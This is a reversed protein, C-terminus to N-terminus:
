WPHETGDWQLFKGADDPTANRMVKLIGAVSQEPTLKAHDGGMRTQVWGPNVMLVTIGVPLLDYALARSLMNLAAKSGCYGYNSGSTKLTLSGLWSSINVVKPNDGLILLEQFHKVVLIPGISNTRFMDLLGEATLDDLKFREMFDQNDGSTKANVGANNILVDVRGFLRTTELAAERITHEDNVDMYVFLADVGQSALTRVAQDGREHNRGSLAIRYGDQGLQHCFELGLGQTAGTVFAVRREPM